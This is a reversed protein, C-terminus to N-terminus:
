KMGFEYGLNLYHQVENSKIFFKINVGNINKHVWKRGFSAHDQKKQKLSFSWGNTLYKHINEKKVYIPKEGVKFMKRIGKNKAAAKRINNLRELWKDPHQEYYLKISSIRKQCTLDKEQQTRNALTQLRKKTCLEKEQQTRNQLGISTNIRHNKLEAPTKGIRWDKGYMPNNKGTSNKSRIKRLKDMKDQPYNKWAKKLIQSQANHFELKIKEVQKSTLITKFKKFNSMQNLAAIMNCYQVSSKGYQQKYIKALLMHAIYHERYTLRVINDKNNVLFPCISRPIIHHLESPISKDLISIFQRKYILENYIKQYNM